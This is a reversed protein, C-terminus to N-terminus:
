KGNQKQTAAKQCQSYGDPKPKQDKIPIQVTRENNKPNKTRHDHYPQSIHTIIGICFIALAMMGALMAIQMGEGESLKCM